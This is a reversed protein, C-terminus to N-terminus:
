LDEDWEESDEGEDHCLNDDDEWDDFAEPLDLQQTLNITEEHLVDWDLARYINPDVFFEISSFRVSSVKRLVSQGLLAHTRRKRGPFSNFDKSLSDIIPAIFRSRLEPTELIEKVDASCL